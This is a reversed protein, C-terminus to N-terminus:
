SWLLPLSRLHTLSLTHVIVATVWYQTVQAYSHIVALSM